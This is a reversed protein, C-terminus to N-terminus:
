MCSRLLGSVKEIIQIMPAVGSGVCILNLRKVGGFPYQLKINEAIHRFEASEGIQLNHLHNSVHGPPRYTNPYAPDGWADYRRVLLQFRGPYQEPSVPTYPRQAFGDDADAKLLAAAAHEAAWMEEAELALLDEEFEDDEDHNQTTPLRPPCPHAPTIPLPPPCPHHAPTTPLRPPRRCRRRM